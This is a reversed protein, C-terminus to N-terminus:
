WLSDNGTQLKTLNYLFHSFITYKPYTLKGNWEMWKGKKQDQHQDKWVVMMEM